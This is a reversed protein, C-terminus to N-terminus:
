DHIFAKPQRRPLAHRNFFVVVLKASNSKRTRFENNKCVKKRNFFFSPQLKDEQKWQLSQCSDWRFGGGGNVIELWAWSYIKAVNLVVGSLRCITDLKLNQSGTMIKMTVQTVRYKNHQIKGVLDSGKSCLM